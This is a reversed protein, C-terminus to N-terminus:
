GVLKLLHTSDQGIRANERNINLNPINFDDNLGRDYVGEDKGVTYGGLLQWNDSMRKTVTFEVGNYTDELGPINTIVRSALNLTEPSQNYATVPGEPGEVTVPTYDAPTVATN